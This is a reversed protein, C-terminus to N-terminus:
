VARLFYCAQDGKHRNNLREAEKEWEEFQDSNLLKRRLEEERPDDSRLPIDQKYLESAYFQFLASSDYVVKEVEFRTKEAVARFAEETFLFFHRPADLQSWDKGYRKWAEALVPMRLICFKGQKLKGRLQSLHTVPNPLHEFSHHLMILDFESDINDISGKTVRVGNEYEIDKEIFSDLGEVNEFGFYSLKLLLDGVGCGFDLIRSSMTINLFPERLFYPFIQNPWGRYRVALPGLLGKREVFYKGATKALLRSSFKQSLGASEPQQYAWYDAPYFDGINPPPKIIQITNCSKCELYEFQERTGFLMERLVHISNGERNSCVKCEHM